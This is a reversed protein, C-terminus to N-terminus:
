SGDRRVDLRRNAVGSEILVIVVLLPLLWQWLLLRSAAKDDTSRLIDLDGSASASSTDGVSTDDYRSHWADLSSMSMMSLDAERADIDVRVYHEGRGGVVKYLGPELLVLGGTRSSADLSLLPENNPDFVQVNGPLLLREGVKMVDPLATSAEFYNLVSQMLDVFAPQLPLNSSLGDLRDNLLLLTGRATPREVLLAQRDTTELLVRDDAQLTMPALDYLRTGFWDIQALGLPHADDILGIESGSLSSSARSNSSSSDFVLANSGADVFQLVDMALSPQTLDRATVMHPVDNPIRDATGALASVKARGDTELSTTVFVASNRSASRDSQLLIVPTASAQRIVLTVQNDQPLADSELVSISLQPNAGPPVILDDFVLTELQESGLLVRQEALVSQKDSVRVTQELRSESADDQSTSASLRVTLRLNVGDSTQADAALHVNRLTETAASLLELETVGPAYLANLQAPLASQQQDSVLWVKVPLNQEAAVKNLRQLLVGYDSSLYGPEMQNIAQNVSLAADTNSAVLRLETDFGYVQFSDTDELDNVVDRAIELAREWRGDARMSYSQDVAIIHHMQSSASVNDRPLWPQAFLFCLLLLGLIRLALLVRYKLKRTRSVPPKTPELFQRSPFLQQEPQQDSFRHLIWPLALAFLGALYAPLLFSM